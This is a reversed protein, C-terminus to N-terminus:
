YLRLTQPIALLHSQKQQPHPLRKAADVGTTSGLGHDGEDSRAASSFMGLVGSDWLENLAQLNQMGEHSAMCVAPRIVCGHSDSM